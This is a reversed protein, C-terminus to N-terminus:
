FIWPSHFKSEAKCLTQPLIFKPLPILEYKVNIITDNPNSYQDPSAEYSAISFNNLAIFNRKTLDLNKQNYIEGKKLTIPRWLAKLKYQEDIRKIKVDKYVTDLEPKDTIKELYQIEVNGITYQKYPTKLFYTINIIIYLTCSLLGSAIIVTSLTFAKLSINLWCTLENFSKWTAVSNELGNSM